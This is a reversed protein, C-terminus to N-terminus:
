QPESARNASVPNMEIYRIIKEKGQRSRVWHQTIKPAPAVPEIPLRVHNPMVVFAILGYLM